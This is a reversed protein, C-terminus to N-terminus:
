VAGKYQRRKSSIMWLLNACLILPLGKPYLERGQTSSYVHLKRVECLELSTLLHIITPHHTLRAPLHGTATIYGQDGCGNTTMATVPLSMRGICWISAAAASQAKQKRREILVTTWPISASLQHYDSGGSAGSGACSGRHDGRYGFKAAAGQRPQRQRNECTSGRVGAPKNSCGALAHYLWHAAAM